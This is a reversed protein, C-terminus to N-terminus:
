KLEFYIDPETFVYIKSDGYENIVDFDIYNDDKYGIYNVTKSTSVHSHSAHMMDKFKKGVGHGNLEIRSRDNSIDVLNYRGTVCGNWCFEFRSTETLSLSAKQDTDGSLIFNGQPSPMICGSIIISLLLYPNYTMAAAEM